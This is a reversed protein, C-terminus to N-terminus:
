MEKLIEEKKRNFDEESILGEEKLENLKILKEKPSEQTKTSETVKEELVPESSQSVPIQQEKLSIKTTIYKENNTAIGNFLDNLSKKLGASDSLQTTGLKVGNLVIDHNAWGKVEVKGTFKDLPLKNTIHVEDEGNASMLKYYLNENTLLMVNHNLKGENDYYLIVFENELDFKLYENKGNLYEKYFKDFNIQDKYYFSKGLQKYSWDLMKSRYKSRDKIFSDCYKILEPNVLEEVPKNWLSKVTEEFQQVDM